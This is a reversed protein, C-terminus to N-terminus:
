FGYPSDTPLKGSAEWGPMLSGTKHFYLSVANSDQLGCGNGKDAPCDKCGWVDKCGLKLDGWAGNKAGQWVGNMYKSDCSIRMSAKVDGSEVIGNEAQEDTLSTPLTGSANAIEEAESNEPDELNEPNVPDEVTDPVIDEPLESEGGEGQENEGIVLDEAPNEANEGGTMDEANNNIIDEGGNIAADMADSLAVPNDGSMMYVGEALQDAVEIVPRIYNKM